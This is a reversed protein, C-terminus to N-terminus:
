SCNLLNACEPRTVAFIWDNELIHQFALTLWFDRASQKSLSADGGPM